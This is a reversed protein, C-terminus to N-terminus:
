FQYQYIYVLVWYWVENKVAEVQNESMENELFICSFAIVSQFNGESMLGIVLNQFTIQCHTTGNTFIQNWTKSKGLRFAALMVNLNQVVVRWEHVYNVFPLESVESGLLVDSMVQTNAFVASPPTANVLLEWILMVIHVLWRGSGWRCDIKRECQIQM